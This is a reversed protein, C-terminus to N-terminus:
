HLSSIPTLFLRISDTALSFLRNAVDSLLSRLSLSIARALQLKRKQSKIIYSQINMNNQPIHLSQLPSLTFVYASTLSSCPDTRLPKMTPTEHINSEVTRSFRPVLNTDLSHMTGFSEYTPSILHKSTADRHRSPRYASVFQISHVQLTSTPSKTRPINDSKPRMTHDTGPSGLRDDIAVSSRSSLVINPSQM